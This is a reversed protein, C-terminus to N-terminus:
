HNGLIQNNQSSFFGANVIQQDPAVKQFGNAVHSPGASFTEM